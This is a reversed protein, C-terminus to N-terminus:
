EGAPAAAGADLTAAAPPRTGGLVGLRRDRSRVRDRDDGLDRQGGRWLRAGGAIEQADDEEAQPDWSLELMVSTYPPLRLTLLDGELQAWESVPVLAPSVAPHRALERPAEFEARHQMDEFIKKARASTEPSVGSMNTVQKKRFAAEIRGLEDESVGEARLQQLTMQSAVPFWGAELPKFKKRFDADGMPNGHLADIVSAGIIRVPGDQLRITIRRGADRQEQLLARMEGVAREWLARDKAPLGTKEFSMDGRAYREIVAEKDNLTTLDVGGAEVLKRAHVDTKGFCSAAVLYGRAGQRTALLSLNVPIGARPTVPVMPLETARRMMRMGALVSKPAGHLTFAGVAQGAFDTKTDWAGDQLMFFLSHTVPTQALATTMSVFNAAGRHDDAPPFPKEAGPLGCNWESLILEPAGLGNQRALEAVRAATNHYVQDMPFGSYDHWSLFDPRFAAEKCAATLLRFQRLGGGFCAAMGPGGVKVRADVKPRVLAGAEAFFRAFSEDTGGWQRPMDPENWIELYQIPLGKALLRAVDEAVQDAWARADPVALTEGKGTNARSGPMGVATLLIGVGAEQARECADFHSENLNSLNYKIWIRAVSQQPRVSEAWAQWVGPSANALDCIGTVLGPAVPRAAGGFEVTFDSTQAAVPAASALLALLAASRSIM